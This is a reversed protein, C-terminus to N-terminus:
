LVQLKRQPRFVMVMGAMFCLSLFTGLKLFLYPESLNLLPAKFFAAFALCLALMFSAAIAGCWGYYYSLYIMLLEIIIMLGLMLYSNSSYLLGLVAFVFLGYLGLLKFKNQQKLRPTDPFYADWTYLACALILTGNFNALSWELGLLSASQSPILLPYSIVILLTSAGGCCLACFFIFKLLESRKFFVLSLIAHRYSWKLLLTAQLSLIAACGLALFLPQGVIYFALASGLYIGPLIDLGRLFVLATATGSAFWVLSEPSALTTLMLGAYQLMLVFLNRQLLRMRVLRQFSQQKFAINKLDM